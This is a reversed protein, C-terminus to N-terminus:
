NNLLSDIDEYESFLLKWADNVGDSRGDLFQQQSESMEALKDGLKACGLKAGLEELDASMLSVNETYRQKFESDIDTPLYFQDFLLYLAASLGEACGAAHSNRYKEPTKNLDQYASRYYNLGILRQVDIILTHPNRKYRKNLYTAM